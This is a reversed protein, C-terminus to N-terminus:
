SRRATKPGTTTATVLQAVLDVRATSHGDRLRRTRELSVLGHWAAWIVETLTDADGDHAAAVVDRIENFADTLPRPTDDAAFHLASKRDFMADYLAPNRRAFLLYAKGLRDLADAPTKSSRRAARLKGALEDFGDLAVADAVESMNQFHAYLVPQSYEVETALRRTTVADWGDTEAIRRATEIILRRRAAREREKREAASM